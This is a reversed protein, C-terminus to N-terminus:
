QSREKNNVEVDVAASLDPMLRADNGKISFRAAFTRLKKSFSGSRAVPAIEELRGPLVLDPYADVRIQASQGAQLLPFDQQNVPAWVQMQSPDVVQMFPTGSRLQDGEEAEAMKGQKWVTNLVVVGDIPSLVRMLKANMEAHRMSQLSRESQIELIRIGARAAKRKLDFTKRLQDLTAKAEQLTQRAKEADIRSMLELREMELQATKLNNEATHLEAEDTARATDEKARAEDLQSKLRRYEAEQDIMTQMQAQWDFEALLDGKKVRTGGAILKTVTLQFARGSALSPVLIGRSFVAETTGKIRITSRSSTDSVAVPGIKSAASTKADSCSSFFLALLTIISFATLVALHRMGLFSGRRTIVGEVFRCRVYLIFNCSCM